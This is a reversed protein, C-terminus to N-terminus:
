SRIAASRPREVQCHYCSDIGDRSRYWDHDGCDDAKPVVLGLRHFLLNPTHVRLWARWRAHRLGFKGVTM